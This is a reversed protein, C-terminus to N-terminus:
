CVHARLVVSSSPVQSLLRSITSEAGDVTLCTLFRRPIVRRPPSRLMTWRANKGCARYAHHIESSMRKVAMQGTFNRRQCRMEAGEFRRTLLIPLVCASGNGM